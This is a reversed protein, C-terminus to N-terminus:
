EFMMVSESCYDYEVPLGKLYNNAVVVSQYGIWYPDQNVSGLAKGAKIAEQIEAGYNVGVVQIEGAKGAEEIAALAGLAEEDNAGFIVQVDPHAALINVTATYAENRNYKCDQSAVIEIDPYKAMTETFGKKRDEATTAGATGELMAIKGKGGLFEAIAEAAAAGASVNETHIKAVITAGQAKLEDESFTTDINIVPVNAENATKVWPVVSVNNLPCVIIADYHQSVMTNLINIQENIQTDDTTAQVDCEIGIDKCADQAGSALTVFYPNSLNKVVVGFKMGEKAPTLDEAGTVEPEEVKPAETEAAKTEAAKTEAAKTEAKAAETAAPAAAEPAASCASLSLALMSVCIVMALVKKM